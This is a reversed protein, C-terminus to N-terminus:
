DAIALSPGALDRDSCSRRRGCAGPAATWAVITHHLAAADSAEDLRDRQQRDSLMAAIESLIELHRENAAEPVLLFVFLGGSAQDPADFDIPVRLRLM